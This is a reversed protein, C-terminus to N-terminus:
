RMSIGDALDHQDEPGSFFPQGARPQHQLFPKEPLEGTVFDITQVVQLLRHGAPGGDPRSRHHGTCSEEVNMQFTAATM